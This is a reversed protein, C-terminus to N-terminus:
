LNQFVADGFLMVSKFFMYRKRFFFFWGFMYRKRFFFFNRFGLIKMDPTPLVAVKRMGPSSLMLKPASIQHSRKSLDRVFVV